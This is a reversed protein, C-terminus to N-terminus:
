LKLINKLDDEFKDELKIKLNIKVNKEECIIEDEFKIKLNIKM